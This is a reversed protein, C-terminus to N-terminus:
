GQADPNSASARAALRGAADVVVPDLSEDGEAVLAELAVRMRPDWFREIHTAISEAAEAPPLHTFQRAIDNGM